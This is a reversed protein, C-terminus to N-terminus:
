PLRRKAPLHSQLVEIEARERLIGSSLVRVCIGAGDGLARTMGKETLREVYGCPPRPRDYDLLVDGIRLRKGELERLALGRTVINRRHEGNLMHSGHATRVVNGGVFERLEARHRLALELRAEDAM